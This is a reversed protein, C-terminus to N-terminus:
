HMAVGVCVGIAMISLALYFMADITALTQRMRPSDIVAPKASMLNRGPIVLAVPIGRRPKDASNRALGNSRRAICQCVGRGGTTARRGYRCPCCKSQTLGIVFGNNDAGRGRLFPRLPNRMSISIRHRIGHDNKDGTKGFGGLPLNLTGRRQVDRRMPMVNARRHQHFVGGTDRWSRRRAVDRAIVVKKQHRVSAHIEMGARAVDSWAFSSLRGGVDSSCVSASCTQLRTCDCDGSGCSSVRSWHM